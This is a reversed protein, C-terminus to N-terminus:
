EVIDDDTHAADLAALTQAYAPQHVTLGGDIRLVQGTIFRARDSCLFAVGHAIDIPQGVYPTLHHAV